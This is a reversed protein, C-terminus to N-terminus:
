DVSIKLKSFDTDLCNLVDNIVPLSVREEKKLREMAKERSIMGERIMKSYLDRLETVGITSSYM